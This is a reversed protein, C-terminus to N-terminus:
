FTVTAVIIDSYSGPNVVRLATIRGYVQHVATGGFHPISNPGSVTSSGGSGNGWVQSRGSNRYLQYPLLNGGSSMRRGAYNSSGGTSLAITYPGSGSNATCNITVTGTADTPTAQSPNYVGFAVGSASLTCGAWAVTPSLLAMAVTLLRRIM